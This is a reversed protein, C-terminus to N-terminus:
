RCRGINDLLRRLPYFAEQPIVINLNRFVQIDFSSVRADHLIIYKFHDRLTSSRKLHVGRERLDFLRFPLRM